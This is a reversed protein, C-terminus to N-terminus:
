KIDAPGACRRGEGRAPSPGAILPEPNLSGCHFGSEVQATVLVHGAGGFAEAM